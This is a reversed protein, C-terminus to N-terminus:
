PQRSTCPHFKVPMSCKEIRKSLRKGRCRRMRATAGEGPDGKQIKPGMEEGGIRAQSTGRDISRLARYSCAAKLLLQVVRSLTSRAPARLQCTHDLISSPVDGNRNAFRGHIFNATRPANQTGRPYVKRVGGRWVPRPPRLRRGTTARGSEMFSQGTSSNQRPRYYGM